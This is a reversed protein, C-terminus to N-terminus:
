AVPSSYYASGSNRPLFYILGTTLLPFVALGMLVPKITFIDALMGVLPTLMGGAGFALGMMLSSVMSRGRPALQQGMSVAVPLTAMVCFGALLASLYVWGGPLFLLLMLCLTALAHAGYFVPKGGIRDSLHGALLGGTAGAVTFISVVVGISVLSYGERAYLVPIFIMFSQSAVARLVMILWILMVSKWVPGIVERMSKWFGLARLGEGEPLPVIKFLAVMVAAGIIMTFPTVTLGYVSVLYTIFVPSVGFAFTGAFNFVSLSFGVHRGAYTPIMGATTPHLMSSGISGLGVFLILFLFSPAVGTLPIFIITLLPGGLVFFRTRYRDALYGVPPQVLFALLRSVGALLGVQALSLSFHEVFAPLLPNIFSIYFDGIFHVLTLGLIVKINAKATDTM